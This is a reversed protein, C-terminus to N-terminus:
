RFSSLKIMGSIMSLFDYLGIVEQSRVEQSRPNKVERIGEEEACIMKGGRFRRSEQRFQGPQM